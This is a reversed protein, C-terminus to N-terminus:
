CRHMEVFVKCTMAMECSNEVGGAKVESSRVGCLGNLNKERQGVRGMDDREARGM